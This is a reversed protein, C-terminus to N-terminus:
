LAEPEQLLQAIRALFLAGRHGDSARHDAALSTHIVRRAMVTGGEAWPREAPTGFGVLAVQPPYIVGFVADVGQDGLSTVTITSDALESSRLRMARARKVLDRVAEMLDDLSRGDADHVAPAVLGGGRLSIASGVHIGGAPEFRGDRWFGNFDPYDRLALAVAKMLLVGYLLRGTVPRRENARALWELAPSFDVPHALHYHPIDRNSRSMAAAIARRMAAAPSSPEHESPPEAIPASPAGTAVAVDDIRIAGGPGTGRLKRVDVGSEAALRAAAPSIRLREGPGVLPPKAAVAAPKREPLPKAAAVPPPKQPM